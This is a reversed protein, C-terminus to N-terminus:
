LAEIEADACKPCGWGHAGLDAKESGCTECKWARATRIADELAETESEGSGIIDDDVFVGWLMGEPDLDLFAKSGTLAYLTEFLDSLVPGTHATNM